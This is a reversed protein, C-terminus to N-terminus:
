VSMRVVFDGIYLVEVVLSKTVLVTVFEKCVEVVCVLKLESFTVVLVVIVENELLGVVLLCSDVVSQVM